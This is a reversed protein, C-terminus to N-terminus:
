TTTDVNTAANVIGVVRPVTASTTGSLSTSGGITTGYGALVISRGDISRTILGESTAIGSAILPQNSGSASTPLAVSQVLAGAPTYEDLFVANGTNVLSGSGDGVRYIVLDGPRFAAPVDREELTELRLWRMPTKPAAVSGSSRKWRTSSM